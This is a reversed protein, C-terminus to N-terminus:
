DRKKYDQIHALIWMPGALVGASILVGHVVKEAFPIRTRPPGSSTQLLYYSLEAIIFYVPARILFKLCTKKGRRSKALREKQGSLATNNKKSILRFRYEKTKKEVFLGCFSCTVNCGVTCKTSQKTEINRKEIMKCKAM